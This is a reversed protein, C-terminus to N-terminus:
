GNIQKKPFLDIEEDPWLLENKQGKREFIYDKPDPIKFEPMELGIVAIIFDIYLAMATQSWKSISKMEAPILEGTNKDIVDKDYFHDKKYNDDQGSEILDVLRRLMRKEVGEPTEGTEDAYAGLIAFM